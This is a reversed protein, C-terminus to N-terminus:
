RQSLEVFQQPYEPGIYEARPRILRNNGYQELIHAAWGAIRSSTVVNTMLIVPFGIHYLLPAAYYDVNPIIGKQISMQYEAEVAIDFWKSDHRTNALELTMRKLVQARPDGTRYVRHGFGPLKRKNSLANKVYRESNEKSGIEMFMNMSGDIAGGHLPGKIASIGAVVSSYIDSETGMVVRCAFTSANIEHEAYIVLVAEFANLIKEDAIVGTVMYYYKSSHSLSLDPEVPIQGNLIRAQAAVITPIQAILSKLKILVSDKETLESDLDICGLMSIATRLVAMPHSTKPVNSLFDLILSPVNRFSKLEEDFNSLQTTNPLDGYLLLYAMQEYTLNNVIDNIDYGRIVLEPVAGDIHSISSEFAVVGDLGEHVQDNKINM